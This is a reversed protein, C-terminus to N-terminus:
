QVPSCNKKSMWDLPFLRHRRLLKAGQIIRYRVTSNPEDERDAITRFSEGEQFHLQMWRLVDQGGVTEVLLGLLRKYMEDGAGWAFCEDPKPRYDKWAKPDTAM